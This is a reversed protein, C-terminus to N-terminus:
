KNVDFRSPKSLVVLVYIVLIVLGVVASAGFVKNLDVQGTPQGLSDVTQVIPPNIGGLIGAVIAFPLIFSFVAWGWFKGQNVRKVSTSTEAVSISSSKGESKKKLSDIKRMKKQSSM